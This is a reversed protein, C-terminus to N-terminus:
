EIIEEYTSEFINPKVPWFEGFPGKVIYDGETAIHKVSHEGTGDELTMVELWGKADLHRAKGSTKMNPGMWSALKSLCESNYEFQMVEVAMPKKRYLKM